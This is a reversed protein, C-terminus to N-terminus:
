NDRRPILRDTTLSAKFLHGDGDVAFSLSARGAILLREVESSYSRMRLKICVM